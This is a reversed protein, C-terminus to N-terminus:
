QGPHTADGPFAADDTRVTVAAGSRGPSSAEARVEWASCGSCGALKGALHPDPSPEGAPPAVYRAPVSVMACVCSSFVKISHCCATWPPVAAAGAATRM